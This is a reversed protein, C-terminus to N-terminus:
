PWAAISIHEDLTRKPDIRNFFELDRARCFKQRIDRCDFEALRRRM